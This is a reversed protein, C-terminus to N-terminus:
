QAPRSDRLNVNLIYFKCKIHLGKRKALRDQSDDSTEERRFVEGGDSAGGAVEAAPRRSGGATRGRELVLLHGARDRESIAVRNGFACSALWNLTEM